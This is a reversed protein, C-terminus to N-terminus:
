RSFVPYASYSTYNMEDLLALVSTEEKKNLLFLRVFISDNVSFFLSTSPLLGLIDKIQQHYSSEFLFDVLYYNELGEPYFCPQILAFQDLSSIWSKYKAHSISCEKLKQTTDVRINKRFTRYLTWEETDWTNLPIEEYLTKELEHAEEGQKYAEIRKLSEEFIQVVVKSAHTASKRGEFICKKFGPLSSIDMKRDTIVLLNWSGCSINGYVVGKLGKYADLPNDVNVFYAYEHYNQAPKVSIRPGKVISKQYMETLHKQVKRKSIGMKEALTVCSILPDEYILQYLTYDKGKRSKDM